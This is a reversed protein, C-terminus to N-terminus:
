SEWVDLMQGQDPAGFTRKYLVNIPPKRCQAISAFTTWADFSLYFIGSLGPKKNCGQKCHAGQLPSVGVFWDILPSWARCQANRGTETINSIGLFINMCGLLFRWFGSTHSYKISHYPDKQSRQMVSDNQATIQTRLTGKEHMHKTAFCFNNGGTDCLRLNSPDYGYGRLYGRTIIHWKHMRM